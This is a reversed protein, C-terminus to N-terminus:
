GDFYDTPDTDRYFPASVAAATRALCAQEKWFPNTSKESLWRLWGPDSEAVELMTKGKHKGFTLVPNKFQPKIAGPVARDQSQACLPNTCYNFSISAQGCQPCTFVTDSVDPVPAGAVNFRALTTWDVSANRLFLLADLAQGATLSPDFLRHVYKM